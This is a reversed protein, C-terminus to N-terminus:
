PLVSLLHLLDDRGVYVLGTVLLNFALAGVTTYVVFKRFEMEAFGAPISIVSRLVPLLRGWM